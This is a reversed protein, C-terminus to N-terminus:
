IRFKRYNNWLWRRHETIYSNTWRERAPSLRKNPTMERAYVLATKFEIGKAAFISYCPIINEPVKDSKTDLYVLKKRIADDRILNCFEDFMRKNKVIVVIEGEMEALSANIQVARTLEVAKEPSGHGIYDMASGFKNNCFQVIAADSRYNRNLEYIKEIGTDAVWDSVGCSEHLVQGTDGFVNLVAEPYLARIMAYDASHLDQGEDICIM